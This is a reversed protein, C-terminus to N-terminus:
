GEAERGGGAVGRGKRRVGSGGTDQSSIRVQTIVDISQHDDHLNRM